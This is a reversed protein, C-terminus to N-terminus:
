PNRDCPRPTWAGFAHGTTRWCTTARFAGQRRALSNRLAKRKFDGTVHDGFRRSSTALPSLLVTGGGGAATAVEGLLGADVEVEASSDKGASIKAPEGAEALSEVSLAAVKVPGADTTVVAEGLVGPPANSNNSDSSFIQAFAELVAGTEAAEVAAVAQKAEEKRQAEMAELDEATIVEQVGETTTISTM